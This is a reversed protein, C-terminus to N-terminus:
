TFAFLTYYYEFEDLLKATQDM